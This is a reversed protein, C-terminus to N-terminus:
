PLGIRNGLRTFRADGRLPDLLPEHKLEVIAPDREEVAKSLWAFASDPEDLRAHVMAIVVPSVNERKGRELVRVADARRGQMAHAYALLAIIPDGSPAEGAFIRRLHARADAARGRALHVEALMYRAVSYTSDLALAQRHATEAMDYRRAHYFVAGAGTHIVPALPDLRQAREALAIAQQHDGRVRALFLSYFHLANSSSPNLRLATEFEREAKGWDWEYTFGIWGLTSHPDSLTSDLAIARLAAWKARELVHAARAARYYPLLTYVDALGAYAPAFSSDRAVAAEFHRLASRADDLSRRNFHYRGKLYLEYAEFDATRETAPPLRFTQGLARRLEEVVSRGIEDQVAFVDSLERDLTASWVTFGTAAEILRTSVRARDHQRRVSGELVYHAGLKRGMSRVDRPTGELAFSSTRAVVDLGEVTALRHLIEEAIGEGLYRDNGTGATTFPLVAVSATSDDSHLTRAVAGDAPGAVGHLGYGAVGLLGLVAFIAALRRWRVVAVQAHVADAASRSSLERATGFKQAEPVHVVVPPGGSVASARFSEILASTEPSPELELDRRLHTTFEDYARLAGARDGTRNLIELLRRFQREDEPVREAAWRALEVAEAVRGQQELEAAMAWGALVAQQRLRTREQELWRDFETAATIHFGELLDGRYLALAEMWSKASLATEFAVADCLLLRDDLGIEEGSRSVLVRPGLAGRLMYAAQNLAGRAHEADSEPWFIGILKDRRHFGRPRAIALYALLGLRKPQSLVADLPREDRSLGISGLTQLRIM